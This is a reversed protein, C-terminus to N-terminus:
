VPLIDYMIPVPIKGGTNKAKKGRYKQLSLGIFRTYNKVTYQYLRYLAPFGLIGPVCGIRDYKVRFHM